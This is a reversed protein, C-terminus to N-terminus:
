VATKSDLGFKSFCVNSSHLSDLVITLPRAFPTWRAAEDGKAKPAM